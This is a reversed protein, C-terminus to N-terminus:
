SIKTPVSDSNYFSYDVIRFLFVKIEGSTAGKIAYKYVLPARSSKTDVEPARSSFILTFVSDILMTAM